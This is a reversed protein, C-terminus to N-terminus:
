AADIYHIFQFSNDYKKMDVRPRGSRKEPLKAVGFKQAAQRATLPFRRIVTDIIGQHNECFRVEGLHIARYRLGRGYRPQLKDSFTAGTGFAGLAM